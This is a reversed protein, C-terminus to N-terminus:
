SSSRPDLISSVFPLSPPARPLLAPSLNARRRMMELRPSNSPPRCRALEAGKKNRRRAPRSFVALFLPRASVPSLPVLGVPFLIGTRYSAVAAGIRKKAQQRECAVASLSAAQFAHGLPVVGSAGGIASLGFPSDAKFTPLPTERPACTWGLASSWNSKASPSRFLM